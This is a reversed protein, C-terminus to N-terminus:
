LPTYSKPSNDLFYRVKEFSPHSNYWVDVHPGELGKKYKGGKDLYYKTGTRPNIYSGKGNAPHIGKRVFGKARFMKDIQEFSKDKFPSRLVRKLRFLKAVHRVYKAKLLWTSPIFFSAGELVQLTIRDSERTMESVLSRFKTIGDFRNMMERLSPQMIQDITADNANLYKMMEYYLRQKAWFGDPIKHHTIVVPEMVNHDEKTCGKECEGPHM